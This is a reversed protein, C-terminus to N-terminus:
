SYEHIGVRRETEEELGHRLAEDEILGLIPKFYGISLLGMAQKPTLGRSCLYYLQSEDPQGITLAHSAKVDNEDIYLIPIVVCKHDKGLTLVRTEQHSESGYAGKIIRGAAVVDYQGKDFCVCFNHITGYTHAVESVVEIDAKKQESSQCLTATYLDLTAGQEQLLGKAKLTTPTDELDLLGLEVKADHHIHGNLEIEIAKESRNQIFVKAYSYEEAEIDLVIKDEHPALFVIISGSARKDFRLYLDEVAEIRDEFRNEYTRNM